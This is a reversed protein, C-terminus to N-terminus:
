VALAAIKAHTMIRWWIHHVLVQKKGVKVMLSSTENRFKQYGYKQDEVERWGHGLARLVQVRLTIRVPEVHCVEIPAATSHEDRSRRGDVPRERGAAGETHIGLSAFMETEGGRGEIRGRCGVARAANHPTSRIALRTSDDVIGFTAVNGVAVLLECTRVIAREITTVVGVLYIDSRCGFAYPLNLEVALVVILSGHRCTLKRINIVEISGM